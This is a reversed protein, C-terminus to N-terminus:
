ASSPARDTSPPLWERPPTRSADTSVSAKKEGTALFCFAGIVAAAVFMLFGGSWGFHDVVWGTGVGSAISGFYGFMGTFGSATASAYKGGADAACVGVMMQPGYVFFGVASLAAADLYPHGPPLLWFEAVAFALAAMYIVNIWLRRGRFITDSLYGAIFAGFAGLLEFLATKAAATGITSHKVEVLFTPAWDMAGYRVLYVFFNAIALFWVTRNRVIHKMVSERVSLKEHAEAPVTDDKRYKEVPPLGLTEPTDRLREILFLAVVVAIAAPVYFSVRWGYNQTLYGGLLLILGGGAMHSTNWIAWKTGLENPSYWHTLLRACPPWGMGQFWGNLAWFLGLVAISSGMGFFVNTIASLILGIAMFYRANARDGLVGNFLKSVGYTLYLLSWISGIQTKTLHLDALLAPTAASLNKRCFYFVAYGIFMAYMTRVRWHRYKRDVEATDTIEPAHGQAKLFNWNM